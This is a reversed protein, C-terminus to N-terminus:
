TGIIAHADILKLTKEKCSNTAIGLQYSFMCMFLQTYIVIINLPRLVSMNHQRLSETKCTRLM